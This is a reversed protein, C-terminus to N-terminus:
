LLLCLPSMRANNFRRRASKVSGPDLSSANVIQHSLRTEGMAARLSGTSQYREIETSGNTM